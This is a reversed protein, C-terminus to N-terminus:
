LALLAAGCPDRGGGAPMYRSLVLRFNVTTGGDAHAVNVTMCSLLIILAFCLSFIRQLHKM